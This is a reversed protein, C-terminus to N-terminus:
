PEIRVVHGNCPYSGSGPFISCNSVYFAGDDGIAVSGPAVFGTAVLSRAGDPAVRWLDGPGTLFPETAFELVYLSGDSGFAIDIIATFGPEHVTPDQGPVVRWVNASGPTFPFGTLEGVYYAGDPGVAVSTPVSDTDRGTSRSPFVALTSISGNAAIRLLTNGGADTAVTAGPKALLGYPNSDVIGRDPNADAEHGAIDVDVRWKGSAPVRALWGFSSGIPPCLARQGPDAGLGISVRADGRGLLAVDHPGTAAVGTPGGETYSPFGTAVRKQVGNWLRSVSGTRGAFTPQGRVVFCPQTGGRGAEAVYLAGEPGWALGRPNDLGM